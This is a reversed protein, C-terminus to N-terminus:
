EVEATTRLWRSQLHIPLTKVIAVITNFNHSNAPYDLSSLTIESEELLQALNGLAKADDSKSPM